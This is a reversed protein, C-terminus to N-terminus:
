PLIHADRSAKLDTSLPPPSGEPAAAGPDTVATPRPQSTAANPANAPYAPITASTLPMPTCRCHAIM